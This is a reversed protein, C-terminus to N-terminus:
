ASTVNFLECLEQALLASGVYTEKTIRAANCLLMSVPIPLATTTASQLHRQEMAATQDQQQVNSQPLSPM